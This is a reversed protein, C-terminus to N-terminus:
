GRTKPAYLRSMLFGARPPTAYHVITGRLQEVQDTPVIIQVGASRLVTEAAPDWGGKVKCEYGTKGPALRLSLSYPAPLGNRRAIHSIADAGRPTVVVVQKRQEARSIGCARELYEARLRGSYDMLNEATEVWTLEASNVYDGCGTCFTRDAYLLPNALYSRIIEEPMGTRGGCRAHRYVQPVADLSGQYRRDPANTIHDAMQGDPKRRTHQQEHSAYSAQPILEHCYPCRVHM